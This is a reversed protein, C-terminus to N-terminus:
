RSCATASRSSRCTSPAAASTSCSSRRTPARRTSATPSRPRPPSTSSACCRSAPSRAPRRPPPASPTTSTPRARHHRGPHRHRGPLGRRRAEAEHLTRASSRRRPTSRATSTSRDLQHGHPAQGLPDHPRPQHHGPAQRGRRRPGRRGQLLRRGVPHHAVGEANPIVVPDGAELVRSSPTPPASTSASPRPCPPNRRPISSSPHEEGPYFNLGRNCGRTWLAAPNQTLNWIVSQLIEERVEEALGILKMGYRYLLHGGPTRGYAARTRVEAREDLRVPGAPRPLQCHVKVQDGEHLDQDTILGLGGASLDVVKGEHPEGTGNEYTADLVLALRVDMRHPRRSVTVPRALGYPSADTPRVEAVVTDFLYAADGDRDFRVAVLEGVSLNLLGDRRLPMSIWLLREDSAQITTTYGGLSDTIDSIRLELGPVLFRNRAETVSSDVHPADDHSRHQTETM